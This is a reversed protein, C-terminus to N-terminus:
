LDFELYSAQVIPFDWAEQNSLGNLIERSAQVIIKSTVILVAGYNEERLDDLFDAIRAKVDEFSEGGNFRTRWRDSSEDLAKHYELYNRGEYGTRIDNM